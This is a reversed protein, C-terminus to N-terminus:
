PDHRRQADSLLVALCALPVLVPLYAYRSGYDAWPGLGDILAPLVLGVAGAMLVAFLEVSCAVAAVLHARMGHCALGAAALLYLAASAVCVMTRPSGEGDVASRAAFLGLGCLLAALLRTTTRPASTM